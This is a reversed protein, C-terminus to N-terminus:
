LAEEEEEEEEKEEEEEEEGREEEEKKEEEEEEKQSKQLRLKLIKKRLEMRTKRLEIGLEKNMDRKENLVTM